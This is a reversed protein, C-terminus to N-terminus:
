QGGARPPIARISVLAAACLAETRGRVAYVEVSAVSVTRGSRLVRGRAVLEDGRAETLFKVTYDLTAASTGPPLLTVAAAAGTFDALAAIPSAQFAGPTYSHESRWTLRTTSRGDALAEFRFGLAAAVPMGLVWDAVDRRVPPSTTV